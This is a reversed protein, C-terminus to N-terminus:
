HFNKDPLSLWLPDCQIFTNNVVETVEKNMGQVLVKTFYKM